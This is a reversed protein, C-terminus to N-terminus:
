SVVFETCDVMITKHMADVDVAKSIGWKRTTSGDQYLLRWRPNIQRTLSDRNMELQREVEAAAQNFRWRETGGRTYINCRRSGKTIWNADDNLDILGRANPTASDNPAQITVRSKM